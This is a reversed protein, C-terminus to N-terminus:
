FYPTIFADLADLTKLVVQSMNQLTPIVPQYEFVADKPFTIEVSVSFNNEITIPNASQIIGIPRNADGGVACDQMTVGTTSVNINNISVVNVTPIFDNHKNLNCLSTAAWLHLNTDRCPKIDTLIFRALDPFAKEVPPYNSSTRLDKWEAAFPFHLLKRGKGLANLAGNLWLDMAERVNNVADGIIPQFYESIPQKPRYTLRFCDPNALVVLSRGPGNVIEYLDKSLPASERILTDIHSNARKVKLRASKTAKM